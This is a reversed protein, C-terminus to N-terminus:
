GPGPPGDPLTRTGTAGRKEGKPKKQPSAGACHITRARVEEKKESKSPHGGHLYTFVFLCVNAVYTTAHLGKSVAGFSDYLQMAGKAM